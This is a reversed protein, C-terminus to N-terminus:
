SGRRRGFYGVMGIAAALVAAFVGGSPAFPPPSSAREFADRLAAETPVGVFQQTGIYLTPLGRLQEDPLLAVDRELAASTEESNVCRDFAVPDLRLGEAMRSIAEDSLTQEFLLDAMADGKGQAAACVAARAAHFAHPHQELPRHARLFFVRDGYEALIPKILAHLKRCYPCEFDAFEVVNIKGPQYVAAVTSPIPPPPKVADWVLPGAVVLAAVGYWATSQLPSEAAVGTRRVGRASLFAFLASAVAAGDVILCLWCFQELVLAQYVILGLGLVAGVGSAAFLTVSPSQWLAGLGGAPAAAGPAPARRLSFGLLVGFAGLSFLPLSIYRSGFFYGLGSRRAAECGSSPGCYGSDLPSMYHVYLAASAALAVVIALQTLFLWGSPRM